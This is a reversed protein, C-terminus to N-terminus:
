KGEKKMASIAGGVAGAVIPAAVTAAPYLLSLSGVDMGVGDKNTLADRILEGIGEIATKMM